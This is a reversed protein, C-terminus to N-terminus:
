EKLWAKLKPYNAKLCLYKSHESTINLHDKFDKWNWHPKSKIFNILNPESWRMSSSPAHRPKGYNKWLSPWRNQYKYPM